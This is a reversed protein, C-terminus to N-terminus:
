FLKEVDLVLGITGNGMISAGKIYQCEVEVGDTAKLGQVLEAGKEERTILIM